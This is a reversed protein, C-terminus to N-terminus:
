RGKAIPFGEDSIKSKKHKYFECEKLEIFIDRPIGDPYIECKKHPFNFKECVACKSMAAM